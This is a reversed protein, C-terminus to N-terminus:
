TILTPRRATPRGPSTGQVGSPQMISSRAVTPSSEPARATTTPRELMTPLGM